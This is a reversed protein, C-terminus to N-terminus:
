TGPATSAATIYCRPLNVPGRPVSSLIWKGRRGQVLFGLSRVDVNICGGTVRIANLGSSICRHSGVSAQPPHNFVRRSILDRRPNEDKLLWAM